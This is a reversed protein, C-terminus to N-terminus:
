PFFHILVEILASKEIAFRDGRKTGTVFVKSIEDLGPGEDVPDTADETVAPLFASTRAHGADQENLLPASKGVAGGFTVSPPSEGISRRAGCNSWPRLYNCPEVLRWPSWVLIRSGPCRSGGEHTFMASSPWSSSSFGRRQIPQLQAMEHRGARLGLM